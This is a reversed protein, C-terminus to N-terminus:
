PGVLTQLYGNAVLRAVDLFLGAVKDGFINCLGVTDDEGDGGCVDIEDVRLRQFERAM